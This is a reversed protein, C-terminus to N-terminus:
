LWFERWSPSRGICSASPGRPVTELRPGRERPSRARVESSGRLPPSLPIQVWPANVWRKEPAGCYALSQWREAFRATGLQYQRYGVQDLRDTALRRVVHFASLAGSRDTRPAKSTQGRPTGAQEGEGIQHRIVLDIATPRLRVGSGRRRRRPGWESVPRPPCELLRTATQILFPVAPQPWM